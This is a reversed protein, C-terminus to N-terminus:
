AGLVPNRAPLDDAGGAVRDLVLAVLLDDHFLADLDQRGLKDGDVGGLDGCM